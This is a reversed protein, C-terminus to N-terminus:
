RSPKHATASQMARPTSLSNNLCFQFSGSFLTEPRLNNKRRSPSAGASGFLQWAASDQSEDAGGSEVTFFQGGFVSGASGEVKEAMADAPRAVVVAWQFSLVKGHEDAAFPMLSADDASASLEGPVTAVAM